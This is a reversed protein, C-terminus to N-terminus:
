LSELRGGRGPFRDAGRAGRRRAAAAVVPKQAHYDRHVFVPSAGLTDKLAARWLAQHEAREDSTAARKLALPIFWEPLLDTEAILATEDFAHLDKDPPLRAPARDAHLKALVEAAAGYLSRENEGTVVDAYLADGLDEIIVFGNKPDAAYIEPASLGQKRLYNSAAVFRACDAGALRAVANYGLARREEPTAGASAAPTEANQPQDMLMARRGNMDLRVYRRTSADGPLPTRGAAGWGSAALFTDIADARDAPM